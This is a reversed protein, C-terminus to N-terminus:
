YCKQNSDLYTKTGNVVFINQWATTRTTTTVSGHMDQTWLGEDQIGWGSDQAWGSDMALSGLWIAIRRTQLFHPSVFM